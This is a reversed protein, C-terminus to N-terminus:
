HRRSPVLPKRPWWFRDGISLALAPVIVTRVLLTDILVGVCVIVGIQTLTILPLVGLVAFVAALLVGASTIVAGTAALGRIMGKRLGMTDAEEKARTVLFISYDVGLAVLFLFSLLIVNTDLAPFGFINQFIIWSAGVASFYSAVVTALLIVPAVLARLLLALVIFVLVLILPIVLAQDAATADALDASQADIGGVLAGGSEVGDLFLRLGAITQRAEPSEAARDLVVNIRVIGDTGEAITAQDVGDFSAVADRVQEAEAAPAIVIAPSGAGAAFGAQLVEQGIVSEPKQMFRETQSLGTTVGGINSALIGLLALGGIAVLVPSKAVSQGLKGWVSKEVPDPSGEKPVLPWFLWRGFLVLSAPLVVLGAIMAVLIGYAGAFGLARNGELSGLLLTLLALAVTGGSALVAPGAQRVAKTMADRRSAFLRLEDRYRAILLLAYNTGAGFVLVSVIGTVSPDLAIDFWQAVVPASVAVVGDAIGVVLLPVLWLVPSRFTVLLLVAVVSATFILLTVDAGDFVAAVDVEFGEPGSLYSVIGGDVASAVDRIENAREAREDIDSVIDMPITVLAVTQDEAIQPPLPFDLTSFAALETAVEALRGLDDDSFSEGPKEFVVLASTGESSPFEDILANVQASEASDPLGVSPAENNEVGATQFFIFGAVAFFAVVVSWSTKASTLFRIFPM